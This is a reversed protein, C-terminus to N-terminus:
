PNRRPKLKTKMSRLLKDIAATESKLSRISAVREKAAALYDIADQLVENYIDEKTIVDSLLVYESSQGTSVHHYLRPAWEEGEVVPRVSRIISGAQYDRYLKAAESDDWEFESHFVASPKASEEWVARTTLSGRKARIRELEAVVINPDKTKLHHGEKFVYKM